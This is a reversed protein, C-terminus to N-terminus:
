LSLQLHKQCSKSKRLQVLTGPTALSRGFLALITWFDSNTCEPPRWRNSNCPHGPQPKLGTPLVPIGWNQGLLAWYSRFHGGMKAWSEQALLAGLPGFQCFDSKSSEPPEFHKDQMSHEFFSKNGGEIGYNPYFHLPFGFPTQIVPYIKSRAMM